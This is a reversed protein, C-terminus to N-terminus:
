DEEYEESLSDEEVYKEFDGKRFVYTDEDKEKEPKESILTCQYGTRTYDCNYVELAYTRVTLALLLIVM